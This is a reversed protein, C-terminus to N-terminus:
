LPGRLPWKASYVVRDYNVDAKMSIPSFSGPLRWGYSLFSSFFRGRLSQAFHTLKSCMLSSRVSTNTSPFSPMYKHTIKYSTDNEPSVSRRVHSGECLIFHLDDALLPCALSEHTRLHLHSKVQLSPPADGTTM